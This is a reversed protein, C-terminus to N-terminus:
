NNWWKFWVARIRALTKAMKTNNKETNPHCKQKGLIESSSDWWLLVWSFTLDRQRFCTSKRKSWNQFSELCHFVALILHKRVFRTQLPETAVACSNSSEPNHVKGRANMVSRTKAFLASLLGQKTFVKWQPSKWSIATKRTKPNYLQESSLYFIRSSAAPSRLLM